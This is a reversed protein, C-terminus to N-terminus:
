PWLPSYVRVKNGHLTIGFYFLCFEEYAKLWQRGILPSCFLTIKSYVVIYVPTSATKSTMKM